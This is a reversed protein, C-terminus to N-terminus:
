PRASKLHGHYDDNRSDLEGYSAMELRESDEVRRGNWIFTRLGTITAKPIKLRLKYLATGKESLQPTEKNSYDTRSTRIRSVVYKFFVLSIPLCSCIFGVCIEVTAIIIWNINLTRTAEFRFVTGVISCICALFGTFFIGCVGLKKGLPLRLRIVLHMPIFLIYFDSVIGFVGSVGVMALINPQYKLVSWQPPLSIITYSVTFAVYAATTVVIGVWIMAKTWHTPRFIRLYLVLLSIKTFLASLFNLDQAAIIGKQYSDSLLPFPINWVPANPPRDFLYQLLGFYSGVCIAAVCILYDDAGFAKQIRLRTYLRLVLPVITFPLCIYMMTRIQYGRSPPDPLGPATGNSRSSIAVHELM